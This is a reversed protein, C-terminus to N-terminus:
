RSDVPLLGTRRLGKADLFGFTTLRGRTTSVLWVHKPVQLVIENLMDVVKRGRGDLVVEVDEGPTGYSNAIVDHLLAPWGPAFVRRSAAMIGTVKTPADIHSPEDLYDRRNSRPRMVLVKGMVVARYAAHHKEFARAVDQLSVPAGSPSPVRVDSLGEDGERFELGAPLGARALAAAFQILPRQAAAVLSAPVASRDQAATTLILSLAFAPTWLKGM